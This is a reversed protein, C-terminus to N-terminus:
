KNNTLVLLTTGQELLSYFFNQKMKLITLNITENLKAM